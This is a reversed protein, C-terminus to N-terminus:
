RIAGHPWGDGRGGIAPQDQRHSNDNDKGAQLEKYVQELSVVMMEM